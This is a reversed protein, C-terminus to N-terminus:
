TQNLISVNNAGPARVLIVTDNLPQSFTVGQSHLLIGGSQGVYVQRYGSNDSYSLNTNGYGGRYYMSAYTSGGAGTATNSYGKQLNYSLNQDALMTGFVGVQHISHGKVDNTMNYSASANRFISQTNSQM